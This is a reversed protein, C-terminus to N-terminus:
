SSVSARARSRLAFAHGVEIVGLLVLWIGGLWALAALTGIPDSILVIGAIATIVGFFLTWGRGPMAPADLAAFTAAVGRFLWGIGIWIGLLTVSEFSGRFCFLGLLIFLAGSIFGLARLGGTLDPASAMVIQLVGSIVLYVGFLVGLVVLTSKPWVLVVVGLVIAVLGAGLASHWNYRALGILPGGPGGSPGGDSGTFYAMTKLMLVLPARRV